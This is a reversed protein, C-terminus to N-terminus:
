DHNTENIHNALVFDKGSFIEKCNNSMMELNELQSIKPFLVDLRSLYNEDHRIHYSTETKSFEYNADTLRENFSVQISPIQLFALEYKTLGSSTIVFKSRNMMQIFDASFNVIEVNECKETKNIEIKIKEPVQNGIIFTWKLNDNYGYRLVYNLTTLTLGLPDSGGFTVLIQNSDKKYKNKEKFIEPNFVFYDIGYLHQFNGELKKVGYYPSVLFSCIINPEYYFLADTGAGDIVYSKNVIHLINELYSAIVNIRQYNISHSIDFIFISDSDIELTEIRELNNKTNKLNIIKYASPLLDITKIEGSDILFIIENKDDLQKALNRCRILHGMGIESYCDVRFYIKM